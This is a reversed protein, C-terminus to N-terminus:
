YFQVLWIRFWRAFNKPLLQVISGEYANLNLIGTEFILSYFTGDLPLFSLAFFITFFRIAKVKKDDWQINYSDNTTTNFAM